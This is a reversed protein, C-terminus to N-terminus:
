QTCSISGVYTNSNGAIYWSKFYIPVIGDVDPTFTITLQQWSTNNAATEEDAVVGAINYVEDEVFISCGVNTAHDKKVWASFTVLSAASVAFEGLKFMVPNSANADASSHVVRWAVPETDHVVSSQINVTAGNAFGWHNGPTQDHDYSWIIGTTNTTFTFETSDAILCNKLLAGPQYMYRYLANGSASISSPSCNAFRCNIFKSQKITAGASGCSFFDCNVAINSGGFIIASSCALFRSDLFLNNLGDPMSAGTSCGSSVCNKITTATCTNGLAFGGSYCGCVFNEIVHGASISFLTGQGNVQSHFYTYGDQLGSSTDWGGSYTSKAPPSGQENIAMFNSTVASVYPNVIHMTNTGTTGYWGRGGLATNVSDIIVTTEDISQPVYFCDGQWGFFSRHTFDNAAVINEVSFATTGPDSNAYIAVSQISSGLAAGYDCVMTHHSSNAITAPINMENVIVDGTTDSCLCIKYTGSSIITGTTPRFWFSLKEYASFDQTGGLGIYCVKGTTFAAGPTVVLASAGIKRTATTSLTINASATWGTSANTVTKTLASALTVTKSNATFTANVGTSTAPTKPFKFFDGPQIRAATAGSNVTQWADAWSSGGRPTVTGSPDATAQWTADDLDFNDADVVTIKWAGNLWATFLTLDVVAGTVLGHGTKNIRTISGSPNSATCSTLATRATDSGSVPDIYFIGATYAM